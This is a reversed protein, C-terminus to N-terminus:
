LTGLGEGWQRSRPVTVPARGRRPTTAKDGLVKPRPPQPSHPLPASPLSLASPYAAPRGPKFALPPRRRRHPPQSPPSASLPGQPSRPASLPDAPALPGRLPKPAGLPGPRPTKDRCPDGPVGRGAGDRYLGLSPTDPRATVQACAPNLPKIGAGCYVSFAHRRPSSTETM